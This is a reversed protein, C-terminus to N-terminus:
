TINNNNYDDITLGTDLGPFMTALEPVLNRIYPKAFKEWLGKVVPPGYQRIIDSFKPWDDLAM